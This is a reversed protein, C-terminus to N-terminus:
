GDLFWGSPALEEGVRLAYQGLFVNNVLERRSNVGSKEFISKLHDQVTYASLALTTAIQRTSVGRLVLQVVDRERPTLDFAAVVLPLIEPPRAGEITLVVNGTTGDADSMPAAHVVLWEGGPLRVRSRPLVDTLGAAFRRAAAVLAGVVAMPTTAPNALGLEDLRTQAGPSLQSIEDDADLIIM